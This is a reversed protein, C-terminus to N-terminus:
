LPLCAGSGVKRTFADVVLVAGIAQGPRWFQAILPTACAILELDCSCSGLVRSGYCEDHRKCCRDLADKPTGGGCGPGCWNGYLCNGGGGRHGAGPPGSAGDLTVLAATVRGDDISRNRGAAGADRGAWLVSHTGEAIRNVPRSHKPAQHISATRLSSDASFGPIGMNVEHLCSHRLHTRHPFPPRSVGRKTLARPFRM